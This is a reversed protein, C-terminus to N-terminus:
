RRVRGNENIVSTLYHNENQYKRFQVDSYYDGYIKIIKLYVTILISSARHSFLAKSPRGGKFHSRVACACDVTVQIHQLQPQSLHVRIYLVQTPKPISTSARLLCINPFYKCLQYQNSLPNLTIRRELTSKCIKHVVCCRVM